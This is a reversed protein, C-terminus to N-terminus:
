VCTEMEPVAMQVAVPMSEGPALSLWEVGYQLDSGSQTLGSSALRVSRRM